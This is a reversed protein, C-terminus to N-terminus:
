TGFNSSYLSEVTQRSVQATGYSGVAASGAAISFGLAEQPQLGRTLALIMAALFSDGAGAAGQADIPIAPLRILSDRTALLAGNAGLSVAIRAIRKTNLLQNM